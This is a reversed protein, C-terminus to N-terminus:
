YLVICNLSANKQKFWDEIKLKATLSNNMNEIKVIKQM